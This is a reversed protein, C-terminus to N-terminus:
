SQLTQLLEARCQLKVQRVSLWSAQRCGIRLFCDFSDAEGIWVWGPKLFLRHGWSNSWISLSIRSSPFVSVPWHGHQIWQKEGVNPMSGRPSLTCVCVSMCVYEQRQWSYNTKTSAVRLSMHWHQPPGRETLVLPRSWDATKHTELAALCLM